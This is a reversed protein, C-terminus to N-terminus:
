NKKSTAGGRRGAPDTTGALIATSGTFLAPVEPWPGSSGTTRFNGSCGGPRIEPGGGSLFVRFDLDEFFFLLSGLLALIVGGVFTERHFALYSIASTKSVQSFM